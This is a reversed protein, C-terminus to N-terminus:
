KLRRFYAQNTFKTWSRYFIVFFFYFVKLLIIVFAVPILYNLLDWLFASTWFMFPNCGSMYQLHKANSVREKILFIGFSALLFSFGFTLGSAVNFSTADRNKLDQAIETLNRPLPHNVVNIRNETSNSYYKFLTNTLHNLALPPAHYPQNNFHGILRVKNLISSMTTAVITKDILYYYNTRGLCALYEDISGLKDKCIEYIPNTDLNFATGDLENKFQSTYLSAFKELFLNDAANSGNLTYPINNLEYKSISIELAPSDEPQIPGYKIYLLNIILVGIPVILQTLILAKNRISHIFRKKILISFQKLLLNFGTVTHM